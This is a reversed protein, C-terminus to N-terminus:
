VAIETITLTTYQSGGSVPNATMMNSSTNGFLLKITTPSTTGAIIRCQGTIINSRGAQQTDDVNEEWANFAPDTADQFLAVILVESLTSALVFTFQIWLFNSANLPTITADIILQGRAQTPHTPNMGGLGPYVVTANSQNYIQQIVTGSPSNSGWRIGSTQTSDAIPVQGNIGVPLILPRTGSGAGVMLDGKTAQYSQNSSNQTVM